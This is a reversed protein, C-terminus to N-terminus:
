LRRVRWMQSKSLNYGLFKKPMSLRRMVKHINGTRMEPLFQHEIFQNFNAVDVTSILDGQM